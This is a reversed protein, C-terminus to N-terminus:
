SRHLLIFERLAQRLLPPRELWPIHGVGDLFAVRPQPLAAILSTLASIPRPDAAGHVVLAPITLRCCREVLGSEGRRSLEETLLRNCEYNPKGGRALFQDALNLANSRDAFDISFSLRLLERQEALNRNKATLERYRRLQEASLRKELEELYARRWHDGLGTGSSYLLGGVRTPSELAYELALRAGWSHGGVLWREYGFRRRLAELDATFRDLSYPGRRDSRGSGRQEWRHVTALDDIMGQVEDFYDWLGPGGHCLVLPPGGGAVGTWLECGDDMRVREIRVITM